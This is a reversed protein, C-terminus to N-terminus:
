GGHTQPFAVENYLDEVRRKHSLEQSALDEFLARIKGATHEAALAKYLEYSSKERNAALLLVDALTMDPTIAPAELYDAIKYDVVHEAKLAGEGIAGSQYQRLLEEHKKEVGQLTNFMDRAAKDVVRRSLDRYMDQAEIEKEIAKQIVIYITLEETM